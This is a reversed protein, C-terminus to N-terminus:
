TITRQVEGWLNVIKKIDLPLLISMSLGAVGSHTFFFILKAFNDMPDGKWDASQALLFAHYHYLRFLYTGIIFTLYFMSWSIWRHTAFQRSKDLAIPLYGFIRSLFLCPGLIDAILIPEM